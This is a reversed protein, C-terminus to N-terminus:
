CYKLVDLATDAFDTAGYSILVDKDKYGWTVAVPTIGANKATLMDVDSDGVYLADEKQVNLADLALYVSDPAPKAQIGKREGIACDFLGRFFKDCLVQVAGDEKNSVVATLVGNKKLTKLLDVIGDYPVTNDTSHEKYHDFFVGFVQDVVKADTGQPLGREVLKKVGNGVFSRVEETTHTPYGFQELAINLSNKLDTLTYLITGDM